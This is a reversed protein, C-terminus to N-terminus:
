APAGGRPLPPVYGDLDKWAHDHEEVLHPWDIDRCSAGCHPCAHFFEQLDYWPPEGVGPTKGPLLKWDNFPPRRHQPYELGCGNCVVAGDVEPSLWALLLAKMVEPTVAPMRCWGCALDYLWRWYPGRDVGEELLMGLAPDARDKEEDSMLELADDALDAWRKVLAKWKRSMEKDEKPPPSPAKGQVRRLRAKMTM